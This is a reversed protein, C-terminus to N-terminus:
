RSLRRVGDATLHAIRGQAITAVVGPGDPDLLVLDARKGPEIRGRDALGTAAAPNASILSWAAALDIVGRRAMIMAARVMAPYFYDSALVNCVGAEVMMAASAWGLHSGGRVVNPCGMVVFDGAARAARGVAEALPFECIGAGRARFADRVAIVDDDHSAIPLGAARAAAGLRDQAAAIEAARGAIRDTLERFAALTMGARDSYKAGAVPDQMKKLISPTHDNFALLHV